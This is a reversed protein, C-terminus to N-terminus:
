KSSQKVETVEDLDGIEDLYDLTTMAQKEDVINIAVGAHVLVYDGQEALPVFALSAEKVASGYQISGTRDLGEGKISIIKGPIALCM